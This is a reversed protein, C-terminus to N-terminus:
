NWGLISLMMNTMARAAFCDLREAHPVISQKAVSAMVPLPDSVGTM